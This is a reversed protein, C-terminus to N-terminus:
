FDPEKFSVKRVVGDDGVMILSLDDWFHGGNGRRINGPSIWCIKRSKEDLVWKCNADLTYPSWAWPESLPTPEGKTITHSCQDSPSPTINYPIQVQQEPGDIKLYFRTKLNFAIDYVERSRLRNDELSALLVQNRTDNVLVVPSTPNHVTVTM